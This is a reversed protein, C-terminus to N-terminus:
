MEDDDTSDSESESDLGMTDDEDEDLATQRALLVTVLQEYQEQPICTKPEIYHETETPEWGIVPKECEDWPKALVTLAKQQAGRPKLFAASKSAKTKALMKDKKRSYENVGYHMWELIQKKEDVVRLMECLYLPPSLDTKNLMVRFALNSGTRLANEDALFVAMGGTRMTAYDVEYNPVVEGSDTTGRAYANARRQAASRSPGLYVPREVPHVRLVLTRPVHRDLAGDSLSGDGSDDAAADAGHDTSRPRLRPFLTEHTSRFRDTAFTGDVLSKQFTEEEEWFRQVDGRYVSPLNKRLAEKAATVSELEPAKLPVLPLVEPHKELSLNRHLPGSAASWCGSNCFQRCSLGDKTV